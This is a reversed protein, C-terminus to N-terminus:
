LTPATVLMFRASYPEVPISHYGSLLAIEEASMLDKLNGNSGVNTGELEVTVPDGTINLLFLVVESGAQKRDVYVKGSQGHNVSARTGAYLAPHAARMAMLDRIYDRIATQKADAAFLAGDEGSPLGEVKASSRSVHDDCLGAKAGAGNDSECAVRDSFGVVEDGIEDGYYLTIPGTYAALFSYAAKHLDAYRDEGPNAIKGRQLLDGFRVLDHNTLFGNPLAHTPYAAQTAYGEQLTSVAASRHGSEEVGLAQVLRYRMPFDFSSCLGPQAASGYAQAAIEAEGKWVEGVMYGLPNVQEGNMTYTVSKSADEVSKRIEGWAGTPVQYAQDLRWGDIKLEKVWYAAVEKFFDLDNPYVAERGTGAQAVGNASVVRGQPSPFDGTNSKFHGFVGDFFVYIGRAHAQEVLERAQAMTGFNPDISFYDSTFYGTADLRDAWEDQGSIPSSHFVPTLWIANMGMNKIYDLSDTIGQLDGRHHSSGYGAGYNANLDGDIFSEVMVQYIRLAKAQDYIEQNCAYPQYGPEAPTSGGSSSGGGGSCGAVLVSFSLLAAAKNLQM